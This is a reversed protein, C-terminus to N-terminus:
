ICYRPGLLCGSIVGPQSYINAFPMRCTSVYVTPPSPFGTAWSPTDGCQSKVSNSYSKLLPTARWVHAWTHVWVGVRAGRSSLLLVCCSPFVPGQPHSGLRRLQRFHSEYQWFVLLWEGVIDGGVSAWLSIIGTVILIQNNIGVQNKKFFFVKNQAGEILIVTLRVNM